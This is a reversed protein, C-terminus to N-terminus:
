ITKKRASVLWAASHLVVRKNETRQELFPIIADVVRDIAVHQERMLRGIAGMSAVFEASERLTAGPLPLRGQWREFRVNSWGAETLIATVRSQDAFAYPGPANPDPPTDTKTFLSGVAKMLGTALDSEKPSCWSAFHLRGDPKSLRLLNTFAAVPNDFFM